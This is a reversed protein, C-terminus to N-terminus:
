IRTCTGLNCKNGYYGNDCGDPCSGNVHHCPEKNKCNGCIQQCEQGYTQDLCESVFFHENKKSRIIVM